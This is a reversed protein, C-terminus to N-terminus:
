KSAVTATLDSNLLCISGENAVSVSSHCDSLTMRRPKRANGTVSVRRIHRHRLRLTALGRVPDATARGLLMLRFGGDPQNTEVMAAATGRGEIAPM